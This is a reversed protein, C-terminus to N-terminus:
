LWGSYAPWLMPTAQNLLRVVAFAKESSGIRKKQLSNKGPREDSRVVTSEVAQEAAMVYEEKFIKAQFTDRLKIGRKIERSRFGWM